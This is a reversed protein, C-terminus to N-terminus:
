EIKDLTACDWCCSIRTGQSSSEIVFLGATLEVRERMSILGLGCRQRDHGSQGSQGSATEARELIEEGIGCGDDRVSLCLQEGAASLSIDVQGAGSHKAINNLSEQVIRYIGIKLSLPLSSEEVRLDLNLSIARYIKTYEHCHWELAELLGLDDLLSPRLEKQIERILVVINKVMTIVSSLTERQRPSVETIVNEVGFKVAALSPGINDHLEAALRRREEEQAELIRASLYKLRSESNSIKREAQKRETIDEFLLAVRLQQEKKDRIYIFSVVGWSVPAEEQLRIEFTRAELAETGWLSQVSSLLAPRDEPAVLRTLDKASLNGEDRLIAQFARNSYSVALDDLEIFCLAEKLNDALLRFRLESERLAAEVLKREVIEEQLRSNKQAVEVTRRRVREELQNHSLLLAQERRNIEAIFYRTARGIATIEDDGRLPIETVEGHIHGRIAQQLELLRDVITRRLFVLIVIACSFGLVLLLLSLTNATRSQRSSQQVLNKIHANIREVSQSTSSKIQKAIFANTILLDRIDSEVAQEQQSLSFVNTTGQAFSMLEAYVQRLQQERAGSLRPLLATTQGINEASKEMFENRRVEGDSTAGAFLAVVLGNARQLVRRGAATAPISGDLEVGLRQIRSSIRYLRLRVRGQEDLVETMRDINGHMYRSLEVLSQLSVSEQGYDELLAVQEEWQEIKEKFERSLSARVYSNPASILEPAIALIQESEQVLALSKILVPLKEQAVAEVAQRAKYVVCTTCIALLMMVSVLFFLSVKLRNSITMKMM